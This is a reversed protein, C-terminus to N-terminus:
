QKVDSICDVLKIRATGEKLTLPLYLQLDSAYFHFSINHKKIVSGLPLLYLAFMGIPMGYSFSTQSFCFEGIIVSFIRYELYSRFWKLATRRIGVYHELHSVLVSHDVTDFAATLDLLVLVAPNGTDVSLAIDNHM